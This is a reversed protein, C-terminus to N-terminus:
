LKIFGINAIGKTVMIQRNIEIMIMYITLLNGKPLYIEPYCLVFM